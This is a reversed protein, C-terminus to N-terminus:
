AGFPLACVTAAFEADAARLTVVAGNEVERRLMALAIAGFRPSIGRSRADGVETDGALVVIPGTRM